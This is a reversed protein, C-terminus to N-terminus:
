SRTESNFREAISELFVRLRPKLRSFQKRAAQESIGLYDAAEAHSAGRLRLEVILRSEPSLRGDVTARDLHQQISEVLEIRELRERPTPAPDSLIRDLDFPESEHVRWKETQHDRARLFAICTSVAVVQLYRRFSAQQPCWNRIIRFDEKVLRHCVEQFLDEKDEPSLDFRGIQVKLFAEYKALFQSWGKEPDSSLLLELSDDPLNSPLDASGM